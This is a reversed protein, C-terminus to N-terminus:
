GSVQDRVIISGDYINTTVWAEVLDRVGLRDVSYNSSHVIAVCDLHECDRFIKLHM